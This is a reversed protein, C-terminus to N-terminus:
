LTNLFKTFNEVDKAPTDKYFIIVKGLPSEKYFMKRTINLGYIEGFTKKFGYKLFFKLIYFSYKYSGYKIASLKTIETINKKFYKKM